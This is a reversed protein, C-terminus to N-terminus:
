PVVRKEGFTENFKGIKHEVDKYSSLAKRSPLDLYWEALEKFTMNSEPLIELRRGEKKTVKVKGAEARADDISFGIVERRRTGDTTRFDNWYRVRNSRKAQDLNKGCDCKKKKLSRKKHCRPCEAFIAM